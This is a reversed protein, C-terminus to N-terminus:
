SHHHKKALHRQVLHEIDYADDEDYRNQLKLCEIHADIVDDTTNAKSIYGSVAEDFKTEAVKMANSWSDVDGLSEFDYNAIFELLKGLKESRSGAGEYVYVVNVYVGDDDAACYPPQDTLEASHIFERVWNETENVGDYWEDGRHDVCFNFMISDDGHNGSFESDSAFRKVAHINLGLLRASASLFQKEENPTFKVNTVSPAPKDIDWYNSQSDWGYRDMIAVITDRVKKKIRTPIEYEWNVCGYDHVKSEFVTTEVVPADEITRLKNEDSDLNMGGVAVFVEDSIDVCWTMTSLHRLRDFYGVHQGLSNLYETIYRYDFSYVTLFKKGGKSWYSVKYMNDKQNGSTVNILTKTNEAVLENILQPNFIAISQFVNRLDTQTFSNLNSM